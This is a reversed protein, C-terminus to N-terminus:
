RRDDEASINKTMGDAYNDTTKVFVIKLFKDEVFERVFKYRIDVHRTRKGTSMKESMFTAGVNVVRVVIPTKVKLGMSILIQYVFKIEKAAESLAVYEAESSSLAVSRQQKSKFSIPVGLLSIIFGSVSLRTDKDGAKDSDSYRVMTWKENDLSTPEIRLGYNETDLVFKMVRKMEKLAVPTPKDLVKTLERVANAIDPRSHKMLYLLMGVGSQYTKHEKISVKPDDAMSKRLGIGPTRPTKYHQANKVLEGFKQRINKMVHPQALWTKMKDKSFVVECGLYDSTGKTITINFPEVNKTQTQMLKEFKDLARGTGICYCDDVYTAVFVIGLDSKWIMLCPDADSQYFGIDKLKRILKKFFMRGSQVLGYIAKILKLYKLKDGGEFGEPCEMYIDEELDGHLFATEIDIIRSDLQLVIQLVIMIRYTVDHIVPSYNEQYDVGAIQSYGCAVLRARYRRDRKVKFIWKHKVCRRGPAMSNRDIVRWVGRQNMDAFEKRIANGWKERVEPMPHHWAEKFEKPGVGNAENEKSFLMCEDFLHDLLLTAREERGVQDEPFENYEALKAVALIARPATPIPPTSYGQSRTQRREFIIIEESDNNTV